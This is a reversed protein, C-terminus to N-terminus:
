VFLIIITIIIIIHFSFFFNFIPPIESNEVPYLGLCEAFRTEKM